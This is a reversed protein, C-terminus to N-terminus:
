LAIFKQLLEEGSKGSKEPHYQVAYFNAKQMAASFETIYSSTETTYKNSPVYYSHVFYYWNGNATNWGTHPV